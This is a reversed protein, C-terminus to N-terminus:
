TTAIFDVELDVNKPLAAVQVTSRAPFPPSFILAYVKNMAEFNQLDKIYVTVKVVRDLSSGASELISKANEIITRFQQGIEGTSIEGSPRVPIIGSLFVFGGAKIAQSYPGIPRPARETFIAEKM